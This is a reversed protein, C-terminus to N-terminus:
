SAASRLIKRGTSRRLILSDSAKRGAAVWGAGKDPAMLIGSIAAKFPKKLYFGASNDAIWDIESPKSFDM